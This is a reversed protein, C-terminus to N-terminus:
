WRRMWTGNACQHMAFEPSAQVSEPVQARPAEVFGLGSFFGAAEMTVLWCERVGATELHALLEAILRAGIGGGRAAAAVAVSRVLAREAYREWGACAVVTGDREALLFEVPPDGDVPIPLRAESLLALVAERDFGSATRVTLGKLTANM